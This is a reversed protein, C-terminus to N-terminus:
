SPIRCVASASTQPRNSPSGMVGTASVQGELDRHARLLVQGDDPEV